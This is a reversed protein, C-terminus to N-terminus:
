PKIQINVDSFKEKIEDIARKTEDKERGKLRLDFETIGAKALASQVVPYNTERKLTNLLTEKATYLVFTGNEFASEMDM